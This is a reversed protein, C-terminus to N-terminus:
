AEGGTAKLIAKTAADLRDQAFAQDENGLDSHYDRNFELAGIAGRLAELLDPASAILRANAGNEFMTGSGAPDGLLCVPNGDADEISGPTYFSGELDLDDGDYPRPPILTWPGAGPTHKSESM